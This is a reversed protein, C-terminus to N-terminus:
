GEGSRDVQAVARKMLEEVEEETKLGLAQEVKAVFLFEPVAGELHTTENIVTRPVGYM